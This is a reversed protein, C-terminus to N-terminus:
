PTWGILWSPDVDLAQALRELSRLRPGKRCGGREMRRIQSASYHSLEALQVVSIGAKERSLRLREAFEIPIMVGVMIRWRPRPARSIIHSAM